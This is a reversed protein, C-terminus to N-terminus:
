LVTLGVVLIAPFLVTTVGILVSVGTALVGVMLSIRAGYLVRTFLDRGLDDTGWYHVSDPPVAGLLLDTQEYSFPAIWPAFIAALAQLILYGFSLVAM